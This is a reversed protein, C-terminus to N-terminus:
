IKINQKPIKKKIGIVILEIFHSRVKNDKNNSYLDIEYYMSRYVQQIDIISLQGVGIQGCLM